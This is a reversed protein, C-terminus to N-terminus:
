NKNPTSESSIFSAKESCIMHLFHSFSLKSKIKTYIIKQLSTISKMQQVDKMLIMVQDSLKVLAEEKIKDQKKLDEVEKDKQMMAVNLMYEKENNKKTLEKVQKKLKNENNITLSDVAKLYEALIEEDQPKYYSKDLGTSHGVLMERITKDVKSRQMNTVAFIRLSHCPHLENKHIASLSYRNSNNDKNSSDSVNHTTRLGSELLKDVIYAHLTSSTIPRKDIM